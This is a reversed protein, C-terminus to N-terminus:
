AGSLLRHMEALHHDDHEAVFYLHDVLRMPTKLRPHPIARGYLAPELSEVRAVLQGRAMRFGSLIGDLTQANFDAEDTARNQLDAVTLGESGRVYDEVRALWLPEMVLLHGAQEQVSWKGSPRQTLSEASTGRVAEELRAPTGRLRALLNPMLELPFNFEFRREFWAPVTSM